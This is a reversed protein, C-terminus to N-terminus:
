GRLAERVQELLKGLVNNGSGDRVGYYPDPYTTLNILKKNGTALLKNKLETSKFKAMLIGFLIDDKKEEWEQNDPISSEKKRAKIGSLRTFKRRTGKDESKQAILAATVNTYALNDWELYIQCPYDNSLFEYKDKFGIIKDSMTLKM